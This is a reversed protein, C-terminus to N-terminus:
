SVEPWCEECAMGVVSKAEYHITAWRADAVEVGCNICLGRM